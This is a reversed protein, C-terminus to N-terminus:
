HAANLSEYKVGKEINKKYIYKKKKIDGEEM